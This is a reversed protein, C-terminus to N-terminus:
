LALKCGVSILLAILSNIGCGFMFTSMAKSSQISSIFGVVASNILAMFFGFYVMTAITLPLRAETLVFLPVGYALVTAILLAGIVVPKIPLSAM